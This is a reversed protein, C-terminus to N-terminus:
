NLGSGFRYFRFTPFWSGGEVNYWSWLVFPAKGRINARPVPGWVRSDLSNDRNDGIVFYSDEPVTYVESTGAQMGLQNYMVWHKKGTLDEEYLAKIQPNDVIDDLVSRDHNHDTVPQPEGNVYLVRDRMQITDGPIGVVRKVYDLSPDKPYRFVIIDGRQPEGWSFLIWDTFPVKLHYALQWGFVRDGVKITPEMSATPVQYPSAVSWRFAFILVILIVLSRINAPSWFEEKVKAM